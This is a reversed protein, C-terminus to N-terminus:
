TISDLKLKSTEKQTLWEFDGKPLCQSLAWDYLNNVELYIIHKSPKKGDYNEM